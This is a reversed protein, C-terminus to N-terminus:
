GNAPLAYDSYFNGYLNDSAILEATIIFDSSENSINMGHIALLNQGVVLYSIYKSINILTVENAEHDRTAFSNWSESMPANAIAIKKGNLYAKFGDDYRINLQLFLIKAHDTSDINFPIRIYCSPNPNGGDIHM